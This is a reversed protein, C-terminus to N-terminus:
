RKLRNILNRKWKSFINRWISYYDKQGYKYIIFWFPRQDYDKWFKEVNRKAFSPYQMNWQKYKKLDVKQYYLANKISEYLEVARNSNLMMLSVGEVCYFDPNNEKVGWADGITFDGTRKM